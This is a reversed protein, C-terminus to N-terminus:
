PNLMVSLRKTASGRVKCSLYAKLSSSSLVASLLVWQRSLILTSCEMAINVSKPRFKKEAGRPM